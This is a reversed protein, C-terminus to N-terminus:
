GGDEILGRILKLGEAVIPRVDPDLNSAGDV